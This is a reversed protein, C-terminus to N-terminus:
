PCQNAVGTCGGGGAFECCVWACAATAGVTKTAIAEAGTRTGAEGTGTDGDTGHWPATGLQFGTLPAAAVTIVGPAVCVTQMAGSSATGNGVRVSCWNLYNKM